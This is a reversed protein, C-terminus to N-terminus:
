SVRASSAVTQRGSHLFPQAPLLRILFTKYRSGISDSQPSTGQLGNSGNAHVTEHSQLLAEAIGATGGLNGDIQFAAPPGTDLLSNAYTYNNILQVVNSHVMDPLFARGSLLISWARSWGTSGGGNSMRRQLSMKAAEFTTANSNTIESGPFLGFLHFFHRHGLDTKRSETYDHIWEMIGGVSSVRLPPLQARLGTIQVTFQHDHQGLIDQAELVIGFLEWLLLNDLTSGLTLAVTEGSPLLYSNEPSLTPNTVKWGKYDTLFDVFFLAIDKLITFQEGLLTKNGTFRYHEMMHTVLWAAEGPWFNSPYSNDQPANDRWLDTNHHSMFGRAHYMDKAPKSQSTHMTGMLDYLPSTLDVLNTVLGTNPVSRHHGSSIWIM